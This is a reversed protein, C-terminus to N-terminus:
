RRSYLLYICFICTTHPLGGRRGGFGRGRDGMGGREGRSFGWGREGGGGFGGGRDGGGRGFGWGRFGGGGGGGRDQLLPCANKMHGIEKCYRCQREGPPQWREDPGRRNPASSFVEWGGGSSSGRGRTNWTSSSSSSPNDVHGFGGRGRTNRRIGGNGRATNNIGETLWPSDMKEEIKVEEVTNEIIPEKNWGKNAQTDPTTSKPPPDYWTGMNNNNSSVRHNDENKNVGKNEVNEINEINESNEINQEEGKGEEIIHKSMNLSKSDPLCSEGQISQEEAGWNSHNQPKTSHYSSASAQESVERVTELHKTQGGSSNTQTFSNNMEDEPEGWDIILAMLIKTYTTLTVQHIM